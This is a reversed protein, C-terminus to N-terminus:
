VLGNRENSAAKKNPAKGAKRKYEEVWSFKPKRSVAAIQALTSM